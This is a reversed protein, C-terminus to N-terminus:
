TSTEGSDSTEVVEPEVKPEKKKKLDLRIIGVIASGLGFAEIIANMPNLNLAFFTIGLIGVGIAMFRITRAKRQLYMVTMSAGFIISLISLYSEWLVINLTTLYAIVLLGAIFKWRYKIQPFYALVLATSVRLVGATYLIIQTGAFGVM